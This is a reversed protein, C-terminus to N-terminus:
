FIEDKFEPMKELLCEVHVFGSIFPTSAKIGQTIMCCSYWDVHRAGVFEGSTIFICPGNDASFGKKCIVCRELEDETINHEKEVANPQAMNEKNVPPGFEDSIGEEFVKLFNFFGQISSETGSNHIVKLYQGHKIELENLQYNKTM